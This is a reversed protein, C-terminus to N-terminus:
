CAADAARHGGKRLRTLEAREDESLAATGGDHKRRERACWNGLTGENVLGLATAPAECSPKAPM